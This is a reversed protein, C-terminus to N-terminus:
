HKKGIFYGFRHLTHGESLVHLADFYQTPNSQFAVELRQNQMLPLKIAALKEGPPDNRNFANYLTVITDGLNAVLQQPLGDKYANLQLVFRAYAESIERNKRVVSEELTVDEILQRNETDFNDIL